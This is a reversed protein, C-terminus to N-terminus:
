PHLIALLKCSESFGIKNNSDKSKAWLEERELNRGQNKKKSEHVAHQLERALSPVAAVATVLAVATIVALDKVWQVM